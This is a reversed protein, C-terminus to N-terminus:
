KFRLLSVIAAGTLLAIGVSKFPHKKICAEMCDRGDHAGKKASNSAAEFSKLANHKVNEIAAALEEKAKLLLKNTDQLSFHNNPM